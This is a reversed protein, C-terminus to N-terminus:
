KLYVKSAGAGYKADFNAAQGPNERLFQVAAPPIASAGGGTAPPAGGGTAAAQSRSAAAKTEAWQLIAAFTADVAEKQQGPTGLTRLMAQLEVNSDLQKSGIGTIAAIDQTILRKTNEITTREVQAKSGVATAIAGGVATNALQNRVNAVVGDKTTPIGGEAELRNYAAHYNKLNTQLTGLNGELKRQEVDRKKDAEARPKVSDLPTQSVEGKPTRTVLLAPQNEGPSAVVTTYDRQPQRELSTMYDIRKQIAIAEPSNSPLYKLREVLQLYEPGESRSPTLLGALRNAGPNNSAALPILDERTLNRGPVAPLPAALANTPAPSFNAPPPIMSPRAQGAAQAPQTGEKIRTLGAVLGDLEEKDKLMQFGNMGMQVLQPVRSDVMTRYADPGPTGGNDEIFKSLQAYAANVRDREKIAYQFEAEEMGFKKERMAMEQQANAMQQNKLLANQRAADGEILATGIQPQIMANFNVPM